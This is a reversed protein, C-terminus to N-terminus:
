VSAHECQKSMEFLARWETEHPSAHHLPTSQRSSNKVGRSLTALAKQFTSAIDAHMQTPIGPFEPYSLTFIDEDLGDMANALEDSCEQIQGANISIESSSRTYVLASSM